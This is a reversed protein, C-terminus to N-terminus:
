NIEHESKIQDLYKSLEDDNMSDLTSHQVEKKEVLFGLLQSKLRIANVAATYQKKLCAEKYVEDLKEVEKSVSESTLRRADSRLRDIYQIIKDKKLNRAAQVHASTESYGADVAAQRKGKGQAIGECFKKEMSSLTAENTQHIQDLTIAM